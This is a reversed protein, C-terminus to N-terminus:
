NQRKYVDLHTYSVAAFGNIQIDILGPAIWPLDLIDEQRTTIKKFHHGEVEVDCVQGSLTRATIKM